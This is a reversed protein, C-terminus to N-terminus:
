SENRKVILMMDQELPLYGYEYCYLYTQQKQTVYTHTHYEFRFGGNLLKDRKVKIFDENEPLLQALIARNKKLYNNIKRIVNNQESHLRNNYNNRCSDDCFKKDIRGRLPKHCQLCTKEM